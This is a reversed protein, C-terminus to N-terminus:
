DAPAEQVLELAITITVDNGLADGGAPLPQQWTMGWDRRDITAELDLGARTLGYPDETPPRYSGTATIENTQGRLTLQGRLTVESDPGFALHESRFELSPYAEASFFEPSLLHGRLEPPTEISISEVLASGELTPTEGRADLRASVDGFTGRFRGVGMHDIAFGVSSHVPDSNFSGHIRAALPM